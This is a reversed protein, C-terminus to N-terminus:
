GRSSLKTTQNLRISQIKNHDIKRKDSRIWGENCTGHDFDHGLLTENIEVGGGRRFGALAGFGGGSSCSSRGRHRGYGLAARHIGVLHHLLLGVISNRDLQTHQHPSSTGAGGGTSRSRPSHTLGGRSLHLFHSHCTFEM